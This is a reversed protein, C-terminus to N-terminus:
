DSVIYALVDFNKDHLEIMEYEPRIILNLNDGYKLLYKKKFNLYDTDFDNCGAQPRQTDPQRVRLHTIVNNGVQIPEYLEVRPGNNYNFLKGMENIRDKLLEFEASSHSFVTLSTIPFTEGVIKSSLKSTETAIYTVTKILEEKNTISTNMIISRSM